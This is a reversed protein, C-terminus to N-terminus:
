EREKENIVALIQKAKEPLWEVGKHKEMFVKSNLGALIYPKYAKFVYDVSEQINGMKREVTKIKTDTINSGFHKKIFNSTDKKAIVNVRQKFIKNTFEENFSNDLVLEGRVRHIEIEFRIIAEDEKAPYNNPDEATKNYVRTYFQSKRSGYYVTRADEKGNITYKGSKFATKYYRQWQELKVCVDTALDLRSVRYTTFNNLINKVVNYDYNIANWYAGSLQISYNWGLQSATGYQKSVTIGYQSVRKTVGSGCIAQKCTNKYLNPLVYAFDLLVDYTTLYLKYKNRALSVTLYDIKAM